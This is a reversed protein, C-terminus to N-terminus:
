VLSVVITLSLVSTIGMCFILFTVSVRSFAGHLQRSYFGVPQVVGERVVSLVAGVGLGCADTELVFVDGVCPVYLKVHNSLSHCLCQFAQLMDESWVLNAVMTSSSHPTLVSSFRHFDKVFQRYFGVMGLFARLQRRTKPIPHERIAMVRAEPVEVVGDGILHGLFLLKRKGYSCKALKCTLRVGRLAEFVNRLHGLHEAWCGSVVLVDDIYVRSFEVCDKLVGEM